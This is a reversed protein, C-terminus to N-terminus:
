FLNAIKELESLTIKIKGNENKLNPNIPAPNCGGKETAIKALPYKNGCADCTMFDGEKKFGLRADFCVQCANAAARYVGNKDKVVFYYVVKGNPLETNYYHFGDVDIDSANLIVKNSLLSLNQGNEGNFKINPLKMSAKFPITNQSFTPQNTSCKLLEKLEPLKKYGSYLKENIVFTPVTRFQHRVQGTNANIQEVKVGFSELESITGEDKVKQCWGCTDLYYFIMKNIECQYAVSNNQKNREIKNGRSQIIM